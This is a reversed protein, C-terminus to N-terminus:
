KPVDLNGLYNDTFSIKGWKNQITRNRYVLSSVVKLSIFSIQTLQSSIYQTKERFHFRFFMNITHSKCLM